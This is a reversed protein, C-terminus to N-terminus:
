TNSKVQNEANSTATVQGYCLPKVYGRAIKNDFRMPKPGQWGMRRMMRGLQNVARMEDQAAMGPYIEKILERSTVRDKGELYDALVDEPGEYVTYEADLTDKLSAEEATLIPLMGARWAERAAVMVAPLIKRMTDCDIIQRIPLIHYRRHGTADRLFEDRNTTGIFICGRPLDDTDEAYSKRFTDARQSMAAKFHSEDKGRFMSDVESLEIVLKGRLCEGLKKSDNMPLDSFEAFYDEHFAMASAFTSKFMGQVDSQLILMTDVKSGANYIRSVYGILFCRMYGRYLANHHDVHFVDRLMVTVAQDWTYHSEPYADLKEQIPHFKRTLAFSETVNRLIKANSLIEIGLVKQFYIAIDVYDHSALVRDAYEIKRTLTNFRFSSSLNSDGSFALKLNFDNVKYNGGPGFVFPIMPAPRVPQNEANRIASAITSQIGETGKTEAISALEKFEPLESTPEINMSKAAIAIDKASQFLSNNRSKEVAQAMRNMAQNVLKEPNNVHREGEILDRELVAADELLAILEAPAPKVIAPTLMRKGTGDKNLSPPASVAQNGYRIEFGLSDKYKQQSFKANKLHEPLRVLYHRNEGRSAWCMTDLSFVLDAPFKDPEDVDVDLIGDGLKIALGISDGHVKYAQLVESYLEVQNKEHWYKGCEEKSKVLPVRHNDPRTPLVTLGADAYTKAWTLIVSKSQNSQNNNKNDNNTEGINGTPSIM